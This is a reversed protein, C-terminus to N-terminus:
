SIKSNEMRNLTAFLSFFHHVSKENPGKKNKSNFNYQVYINIIQMIKSWNVNYIQEAIEPEVVAIVAAAFVAVAVVV